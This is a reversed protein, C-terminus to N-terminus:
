NVLAKATKFKRHVFNQQLSEQSLYGGAIYQELDNITTKQQDIVGKVVDDITLIGRLIKDEFVPLHCIHQKTMLNMCDEVKNEPTVVILHEVMVDRVHASHESRGNLAGKRAYDRESFIGVLIEDEVVLLAGIDNIAMLRLAEYVTTDPHISITKNGKRSLLDKVTLM